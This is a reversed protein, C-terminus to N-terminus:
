TGIKKLIKKLFVQMILVTGRIYILAPHINIQSVLVIGILSAGPLQALAMVKTNRLSRVRFVKPPM